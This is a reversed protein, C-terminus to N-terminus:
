AVGLHARVQELESDTLGHARLYDGAGRFNDTLWDLTRRMVSPDCALLQAYRRGDLGLRALIADPGGPLRAIREATMAYDAVIDGEDVGALALLLAAVLGTRDKGVTCHFLAAGASSGILRLTEVFLRGQTELAQVYLGLLMDGRPIRSPDLGDFLPIAILEVGDEPRIAHPEAQRERESRLDIVRTVNLQKLRAVGNRDLAAVNGSRIARRWAVPRGYCTPYGGLDRTNFSGSIIIDREPM